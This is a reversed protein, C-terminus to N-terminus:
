LLFLPDANNFIFRKRNDLEEGKVLCTFVSLFAGHSVVLVTEDPHKEIIDAYVEKARTQVDLLSEGGSFSFTLPNEKMAAIIEPTLKEKAYEAGEFEGFGREQLRKDFYVPVPAHKSIAKVCTVVARVLDSCYVVDFPVDKLQDAVAEAQSLGTENLPIDVQGQYLGSLNYDTQGHRLLIFKTM